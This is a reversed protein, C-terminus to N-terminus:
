PRQGTRGRPSGCHRCVERAESLDPSYEVGAGTGTRVLGRVALTRLGRLGAATLARDDAPVTPLGYPWPTRTAAVMAVIEDDTLLVGM